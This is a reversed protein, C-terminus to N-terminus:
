SPSPASPPSTHKRERERKERAKNERTNGKEKEEEQKKEKKRMERKRESGREEAPPIFSIERCVCLCYMLPRTPHMEWREREALKWMEKNSSAESPLFILVHRSHGEWSGTVETM